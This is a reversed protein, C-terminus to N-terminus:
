RHAAPAPLHTPAGSHPLHSGWSTHTHPPPDWHHGRLGGGWIPDGEETRGISHDQGRPVPPTPQGGAVEQTHQLQAGETLVGDNPSPTPPPLPCLPNQPSPPPETDGWIDKSVGLNGGRKGGEWGWDAHHVGGAGGGWGWLLSGM